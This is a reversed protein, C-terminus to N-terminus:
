TFILSSFTCKSVNLQQLIRGYAWIWRDRASRRPHGMKTEVEEEFPAKQKDPSLKEDMDITEEREIPLTEDISEQHRLPSKPPSSVEPEFDRYRENHDPEFRDVVSAPSERSYDDPGVDDEAYSDISEQAQLYRDRFGNQSLQPQFQKTSPPSHYQNPMPPQYQQVPSQQYSQPPSHQYSQPPSQPYSQPPSQYQQKSSSMSPPQYEQVSPSHFQQSTSLIYQHSTPTQYQQSTPTQYQQLSNASTVHPPQQLPGTQPQCSQANLQSQSQIVPQSQITHVIAQTQVTTMAPPSADYDFRRSGLSSMATEFSDEDRSERSDIDKQEKVENRENRRQQQKKLTDRRFIFDNVYFM